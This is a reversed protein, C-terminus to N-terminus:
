KKKYILASRMDVIRTSDIMVIEFSSSLTAIMAINQSNQVYIGSDGMTFLGRNYIYKWTKNEYFWYTSFTTDNVITKWEGVCSYYTNVM